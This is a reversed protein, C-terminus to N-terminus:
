NRDRPNISYVSPQPASGVRPVPAQLMKNAARTAPNLVEAIWGGLTEERGTAATIGADIARSPIGLPSAKLAEGIGGKSRIWVFLAIGAVVLVGLIGFAAFLQLRAIM